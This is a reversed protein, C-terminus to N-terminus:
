LKSITFVARSMYERSHLCISHHLQVGSLILGPVIRCVTTEAPSKFFNKTPYVPNIALRPILPVASQAGTYSSEPARKRQPDPQLCLSSHKHLAPSFRLIYTSRDREIILAFAASIFFTMSQRCPAANYHSSHFAM